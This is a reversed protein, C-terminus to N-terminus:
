PGILLGFIHYKIETGADAKGYITNTAALTIRGEDTIRDGQAISTTPLYLNTNASGNIYLTASHPNVGDTNVLVIRSIIVSSSGPVTYLVGTSRPLQGQALLEYNDTSM